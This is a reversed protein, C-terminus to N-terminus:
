ERPSGDLRQWQARASAVYAYRDLVSLMPGVRLASPTDRPSVACRNSCEAALFDWREPTLTESGAGAGAFTAVLRHEGCGPCHHPQYRQSPM